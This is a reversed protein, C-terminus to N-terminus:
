FNAITKVNLISFIQPDTEKAIVKQIQTLSKESEGCFVKTVSENSAVELYTRIRFLIFHFFTERVAHSWNLFLKIFVDTLFYDVIEIKIKEPFMEFQNYILWIAKAACLSHESDLVM